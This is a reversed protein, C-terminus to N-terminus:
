NCFGPIQWPGNQCSIGVSTVSTKSEAVPRARHYHRRDPAEVTSTASVVDHRSLPQVAETKDPLHGTRDVAPGNAFKRITSFRRNARGPKSGPELEDSIKKVERNACAPNSGAARVPGLEIDNAPRRLDSLGPDSKPNPEVAIRSMPRGEVGYARYYM